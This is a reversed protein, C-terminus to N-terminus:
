KGLNLVWEYLWMKNIDMDNGLTYNVMHVLQIVVFVAIILAIIMSAVHIPKVKAYKKPKQEGNSEVSARARTRKREEM